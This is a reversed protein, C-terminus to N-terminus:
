RAIVQDQLKLLDSVDEDFRDTWLHAGTEADVLQANVRVRGGDRQASGELVYRVGLEEGIQKTVGDAFYDQASDSSLNRFPLAVISFHKAVAPADIAQGSGGEICAKSNPQIEIM